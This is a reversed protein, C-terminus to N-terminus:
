SGNAVEKRLMRKAANREEKNNQKKDPNHCGYKCRRGGPCTKQKRKYQSKRM